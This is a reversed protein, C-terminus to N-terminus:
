NLSKTSLFELAIWYALLTTHINSQRAAAEAQFGGDSQQQQTLQIIWSKPIDKHYNMFCCALLGEMGTDTAIGVVPLYKLLQAKFIPFDKEMNKLTPHSTKWYKTIWFYPLLLHAIDRIEKSSFCDMTTLESWIKDLNANWKLLNPYIGWLMAQEIPHTNQYFRILATTDPKFNPKILPQFFKEVPLDENYIPKFDLLNHPLWNTTDQYFDHCFKWLLRMNYSPFNNIQYQKFLYQFANDKLQIIKKRYSQAHLISIATLFNFLFFRIRLARM